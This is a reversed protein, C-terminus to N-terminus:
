AFLTRVRIGTATLIGGIATIGGTIHMPLTIASRDDMFALFDQFSYHGTQMIMGHLLWYSVALVLSALIFGPLVLVLRALEGQSVSIDFVAWDLFAFLSLVYYTLLFSLAICDITTRLDQRMIILAFTSLLLACYHIRPIGLIKKM